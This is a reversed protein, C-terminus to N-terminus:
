CQMDFQQLLDLTRRKQVIKNLCLRQVVSQILIVDAMASNQAM